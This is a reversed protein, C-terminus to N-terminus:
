EIIPTIACRDNPHMPPCNVGAKMESYLFVKGDLKACISCTKEDTDALFKYRTLGADKYRQAAAQTQIHTVETKVLTNARNYSVNFRNMLKDRLQKTTKGTVVCNILEDNLTAVLDDVNDWVRDSFNKGDALWVSNIMQKANPTSITAFASESPLATAEYIALWEEEFEKSLLAVEKDGLKQLERKLQAQAQWYKDLKYLDAPTAERGDEITNLLKDYTMEFELMVDKMAKKYYKALQKQTQKITKDALKRHTEQQRDLWYNSM